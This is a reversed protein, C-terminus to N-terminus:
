SNPRARALLYTQVIVFKVYSLIGRVKMYIPRWGSPPPSKRVRFALQVAWRSGGPKVLGGRHIGRSGDFMVITGAPDIFRKEAGLLADSLESGDVIDDGFHTSGRLPLPLSLMDRRSELHRFRPRYYEGNDPRGAFVYGTAEDFGKHVAVNLPSRDWKHSGPVFCFAGDIEHVDRLYMMAKIIGTDADTHMYVTKSTGLKTDNYCDQYWVQEPHAHDLAAYCFDVPKGLYASIFDVAGSKKMARAIAWCAPSDAHLSMVCHKQPIQRSKRRLMARELISTTWAFKALRPVEFKYYGDQRFSSLGTKFHDRLEEASSNKTESANDRENLDSRLVKRAIAMAQTLLDLFEPRAAAVLRDTLADFKPGIDRDFTTCLLEAPAPEALLQSYATNIEAILAEAARDSKADLGAFAPHCEYDVVPMKGLPMDVERGPAAVAEDAAADEWNKKGHPEFADNRLRDISLLEL